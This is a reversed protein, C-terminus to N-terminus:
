YKSSIKEFGCTCTQTPTWNFSSYHLYYMSCVISNVETKSSSRVFRESSLSKSLVTRCVFILYYYCNEVVCSQCQEPRRYAARSQNRDNELLKDYRKLTPPTMMACRCLVAMVNNQTCCLCHLVNLCNHVRQGIQLKESCYLATSPSITKLIPLKSEKLRTSNTHKGWTQM